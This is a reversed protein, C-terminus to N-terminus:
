KPAQTAKIIVLAEEIEDDLVSPNGTIEYTGPVGNAQYFLVALADQGFTTAVSERLIGQVEYAAVINMVVIIQGDNYRSVISDRHKDLAGLDEIVLVKKDKYYSPINERMASNLTVEFEVWIAKKDVFAVFKYRGSESLDYGDISYIQSKSEGNKLTYIEDSFDIYDTSCLGWGENTQKYVYCKLNYEIDKGTENVWKVTFTPKKGIVDWSHQEEAGIDFYLGEYETGSDRYGVSYSYEITEERVNQTALFVMPISALLIVVVLLIIACIWFTKDTLTSKLNPKKKYVIAAIIWNLALAVALALSVFLLDELNILTLLIGCVLIAGITNFIKEGVSRKRKDFARCVSLGLEILALYYPFTYLFLVMLDFIYPTSIFGADGGAFLAVFFLAPVYIIALAFFIYKIVKQSEKREHRKVVGDKEKQLIDENTHSCMQEYVARCDACTEIHGKIMETSAESCAGDVYLPLLDQVIDCQKSM